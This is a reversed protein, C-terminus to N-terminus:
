SHINVFKRLIKFTSFITKEWFKKLVKLNDAQICYLKNYNKAFRVNWMKWQKTFSWTCKQRRVDGHFNDKTVLFKLWVKMTKMWSRSWPASFQGERFYSTSISKVKWKLVHDGHLTQWPERSSVKKICQGKM